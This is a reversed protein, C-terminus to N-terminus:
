HACLRQLVAKTLPLRDLHCRQTRLAPVAQCVQWPLLRRRERRVRERSVWALLAERLKRDRQAWDTRCHNGQSGRPTPSPLVRELWPRDHRRLWAYGAQFRTRLKKRPWAPHRLRLTRLARRWHDRRARLLADRWQDRLGVETRLVTRVLAPPIHLADAIAAQAHGRQLGAVVRSRLDGRLRKPRTPVRIGARAAWDQATAVAIGATSAAATISAGRESVDRLFRERVADSAAPARRRVPERAGPTAGTRYAQAFDDWETFLCAMLVLHRLPHTRGRPTRFLRAVREGVTEADGLAPALDDVCALPATAAAYARALASRALARTGRTLGFESARAHYTEALRMPEYVTSPVVDVVSTAFRALKALAICQTRDYRPTPGLYRDQPLFFLFRGVGNAKVQATRLPAGHRPCLYVGPCQHLRHWYPVGHLQTDESRCDDCARLPHHAGFRGTLLGLRFKLMGPMPARLSAMAYRQTLMSHWPLYFPLLTRERIVSVADGLTGATREVFADIGVPFDHAAGRRPAGFLQECTTADLANGSAQHYRGCWSYLTEDALWVPLWNTAPICSRDRM